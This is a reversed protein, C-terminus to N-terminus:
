FFFTLSGGIIRKDTGLQLIRGGNPVRVSLSFWELKSIKLSHGCAPRGTIIIVPWAYCSHKVLETPSGKLLSPRIGANAEEVLHDMSNHCYGEWIVDLGCMSHGTVTVWHCKTLNMSVPVIKGSAMTWHFAGGSDATPLWLLLEYNSLLNLLFKMITKHM